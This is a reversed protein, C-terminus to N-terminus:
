AIEEQAAAARHEIIKSYETNHAWGDVDWRVKVTELISGEAYTHSIRLDGAM